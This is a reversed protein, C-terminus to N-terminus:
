ALAEDARERASPVYNVWAYFSSKPVEVADCMRKVEFLGRHDEVFRFRFRIM